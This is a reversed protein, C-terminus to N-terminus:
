NKAVVRVRLDGNDDGGGEVIKLVEQTLAEADAKVKENFRPDNDPAFRYLNKTIKGDAKEALCTVKGLLRDEMRGKGINTIIAEVGATSQYTGERVTRIVFDEM